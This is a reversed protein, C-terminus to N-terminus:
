GITDSCWFLNRLPMEMSSLSQDLYCRGVDTDAGMVDVTLDKRKTGLMQYSFGALTILAAGASYIGLTCYGVETSHGALETPAPRGALLFSIGALSEAGLERPEEM